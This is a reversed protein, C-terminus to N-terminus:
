ISHLLSQSPIIIPSISPYISSCLIGTFPKFFLHIYGKIVYIKFWITISSHNESCSSWPCLCPVLLNKSSMSIVSRIYIIFGMFCIPVMFFYLEFNWPTWRFMYSKPIWLSINICLMNIINLNWINRSRRFVIMCM